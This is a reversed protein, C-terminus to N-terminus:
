KRFFFLSFSLIFSRRISILTFVPAQFRLLSAGYMGIKDLFNVRGLQDRPKWENAL